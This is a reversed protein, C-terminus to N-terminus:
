NGFCAQANAARIIGTEWNESSFLLFLSTSLLTLALLFVQRAKNIM